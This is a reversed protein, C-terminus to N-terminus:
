MQQQQAGSSCRYWIAAGAAKHAKCSTDFWRSGGGAAEGGGQSEASVILTMACMVGSVGFIFGAEGALQAVETAM